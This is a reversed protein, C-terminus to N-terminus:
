ASRVGHPNLSSNTDKQWNRVDKSWRRPNQSKAKQYVITRKALVDQHFGSHRANPTVYNIRSHLHHENYWKFFAEMWGRAEELTKFPRYPYEPRYKLTKFLSEIHANDNSVSPRSFSPVVGLRQLTALITGSKMANGNDAHLRLNEGKIGEKKLCDQILDASLLDSERDEVRWGLAKRSYIDEVLYLYFYRGRIPSRLLTIDWSWIENPKEATYKLPTKRKQPRISRYRHKLLRERRLIRYLSAESCLYKGQDALRPVIQCAPLDMYEESNIVELIRKVEDKTLRHSATKPGTRLDGVVPKREWRQLTRISLNLARCAVDKRAGESIAENIM